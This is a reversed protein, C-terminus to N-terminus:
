WDNKEIRMVDRHAKKRNIMKRRSDWGVLTMMVVKILNDDLVGDYKEEWSRIKKNKFEVKWLCRAGRWVLKVSIRVTKNKENRNQKTETIMIKKLTKKRWVKKIKGYPKNRSTKINKM